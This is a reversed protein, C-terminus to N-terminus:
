LIQKAALFNWNLSCKLFFWMTKRTVEFNASGICVQGEFPTYSIDYANCNAILYYKSHFGTAPSTLKHRPGQQIKKGVEAM